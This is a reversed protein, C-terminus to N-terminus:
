YLRPHMALEQFIVRLSPLLRSDINGGATQGGKSSTATAGQYCQVTKLVFLWWLWIQEDSALAALAYSLFVLLKKDTRHKTLMDYMVYGIWLNGFRLLVTQKGASPVKM